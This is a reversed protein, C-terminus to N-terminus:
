EKIYHHEAGGITAAYTSFEGITMGHHAITYVVKSRSIIYFDLMAKNAVTDSESHAIHGIQGGSIRLYGLAECRALFKESDSFVYIPLGSHVESIDKLSNLCKTILTEQEDEELTPYLKLKGEFNGLLNVFRFHVSIYNREQLGTAAALNLLYESPTFLEDFCQKFEDRWKEPDLWESNQSYYYRILDTGVYWYYHYQWGKTLKPVPYVARYMALKATLISKDLHSLDCRWDILNPKFYREIDFPYKFYLKFKLENRKAIFYINVIAKIRDALGAQKYKKDIIFFVTNNKKTHNPLQIYTALKIIQQLKCVIHRALSENIPKYMNDM